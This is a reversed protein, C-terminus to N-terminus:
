RIIINNNNNNDLTTQYRQSPTCYMKKKMSDRLIQATLSGTLHAQSSVFFLFLNFLSHFVVFWM